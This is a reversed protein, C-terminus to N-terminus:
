TVPLEAIKAVKCAAFAPGTTALSLAAVAGLRVRAWGRM